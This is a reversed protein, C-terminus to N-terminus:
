AFGQRAEGLRGLPRGVGASSTAEWGVMGAPWQQAHATAVALDDIHAMLFTDSQACLFAAIVCSTADDSGVVIGRAHLYSPRATFVEGQPVTLCTCQQRPYFVVPSAM